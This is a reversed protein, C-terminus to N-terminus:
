RCFETLIIKWNYVVHVQFSWINRQSYSKEEREAELETLPMERWFRFSGSSCLRSYRCSPSATKATSYSTACCSARSLPGTRTSIRLSEPCSRTM